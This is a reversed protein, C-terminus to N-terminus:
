LSSFNMEAVLDPNFVGEIVGTLIGGEIYWCVEQLTLFFAPPSFM